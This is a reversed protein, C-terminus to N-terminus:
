ALLALDLQSYAEIVADAEALPPLATSAARVQVVYMGATKASRTGFLTDEFAICDRPEVGLLQAARLYLDPAPKAHEVENAAVTAMFQDALGLGALTADIWNRLSASALGVPIKRDHLKHLLDRVGPLPEIPEKLLRMVADNYPPLFREVPEDIRKERIVWTWAAEVSSGIVNTYEQDSVTVGYPELIVDFAKHYLPEGDWIVGDLDFIVAKYRGL